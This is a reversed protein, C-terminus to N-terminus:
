SKSEETEPDAWALCSGGESKAFYSIRKGLLNAYYKSLDKIRSHKGITLQEDKYYIGTATYEMTKYNCEIKDAIVGFTMHYNRLDIGTHEFLSDPNSHWPGKAEHITGDELQFKLISGGFGNSNSDKPDCYINGPSENLPVLWVKNTLNSPVAKYVKTEAEASANVQEHLNKFKYEELIHTM